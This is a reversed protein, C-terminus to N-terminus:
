ADYVTNNHKTDRGYESKANNYAYSMEKLIPQCLFWVSTDGFGSRILLNLTNYTFKDVSLKAIYPDKVIDVHANIFASLWSSIPTNDDGVLKDLDQIGTEKISGNFKVGFIRCLEQSTVNLAFPAIGANGTIYDNKRLVQEHLTGFNYSLNKGSDQDPIKKAINILPETDNDISRFLSNISNDTDKLLTLM